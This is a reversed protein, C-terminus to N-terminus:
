KPQSSISELAGRRELLVAAELLDQETLKGAQDKEKLESLRFDEDVDGFDLQERGNVTRTAPTPDYSELAEGVKVKDADSLKLKKLKTAQKIADDRASAPMASLVVLGAPLLTGDEGTYAMIMYGATGAAAAKLVDEEDIGYDVLRKALRPLITVPEGSMIAAADMGAKSLEQGFQNKTRRSGFRDTVIRMAAADNMLDIGTYQKITQILENAERGRGSDLLRLLYEGGARRQTYSQLEGLADMYNSYQTVLSAQEKGVTQAAIEAIQSRMSRSLPDVENSVDRASKGFKIKSDFNKRLDIANTLTPNSKFTNLDSLLSELARIDGDAASSIAGRQRTITGNINVLNLKKLQDNFTKEIAEVGPQNIRYSALKQRTQGIQSGTNSLQKLLEQEANAVNKAGVAYPTDAMDNINARHVADLYEQFKAPGMQQLRSKDAPDLNIYKEKFTLAARAAEEQERPSLNPDRARTRLTTVADDVVQEPTTLRAADPVLTDVQSMTAPVDPTRRGAGRVVDDVLGKFSQTIPKTSGLGFPEALNLATGLNEQTRPSLKQYEDAIPQMATQAGEAIGQEEKDTLLMKGAGKLMNFGTQFPYSVLEGAKRFGSELSTREGSQVKTYADDINASTDQGSQYIDTGISLYDGKLDSAMDKVDSVSTPIRSKVFSGIADNTVGAAESVRSGFTEPKEAKPMSFARAFAQEKTLGKAKAELIIRKQEETLAM